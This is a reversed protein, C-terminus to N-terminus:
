RAGRARIFGALGEVWRPEVNCSAVLQVDDGGHETFIEQYEVGVEILTELCDAVFSPSFVLLRKMGKKGCDEIVADSFPKLWRDNLRSQFSVTYQEPELGLKHALRRSTEYSTAKYCFKNEADQKSECDHDACLDDAGLYVKDVHREPLGHYSMIVHDYAAIDHKRAQDVLTDLYFDEEHFQNVMEVEPIVWWRSMVEMVKQLATGSSSSAYQPYMPIVLIKDYNQARMEELVTPISPTQYRMAMHVHINDGELGANLAETLAKTHTMIPSQGGGVEWLEKYIKTSKPARLPAIICQVLFFRLLSPVDIVRADMLFERLFARVSSVKPAAPTGLQVLVVGTRRVQKGGIESM